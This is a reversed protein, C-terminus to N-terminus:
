PGTISYDMPHQNRGALGEFILGDSGAVL